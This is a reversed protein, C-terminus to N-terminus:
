QLLISQMLYLLLIYKLDLFREFCLFMIQNEFVFLNKKMNTLLDNIVSLLSEKDTLYEMTKFLSIL